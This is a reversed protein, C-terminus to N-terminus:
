RRSLSRLSNRLAAPQVPKSLFSHGSARVQNRVADSTDASIVIAKVPAEWNNQLQEIAWVGNAGHDLHFDALIIDPLASTAPLGAHVATADLAAQAGSADQACFTECGWQTLLADLGALIRPDNDICLVRLGQLESAAPEETKITAGPRVLPLGISFVSGKGPVSLLKIPLGLQQAMRSAIALGLGLGQTPDPQTSALREFEDFIRQQDAPAIGRGTDWVQVWLTNKARRCGLLVRGKQTYNIANSLFNQVIRRVLSADTHVWCQSPVWRFSLGKQTALATFERCLPTLLEAICFANPNPALKGSELRAMERLAEILQECSDLADAVAHLGQQMTNLDQQKAQQSLAEVFLRAANIPQAMDHSAAALFRSKSAHANQLQQEAQARRTNEARLSENATQLAQTRESVRDELQTKIQTLEAVLTHMETIDTYTTVYGGDPLPIGRIEIVRGDPLERTLRYEKGRTLWQLRKHIAADLDTEQQAFLGRGANFEYVKAIPCGVYLLRPPYSFMQEYRSNWAALQLQADVVSVGQAITELTTQLLAQSFQVQQSNGGVLQVLDELQLPQQKRLLDLTRQASAAGVIAALATEMRALMLKPIRDAPLLRHGIKQECERWLQAARAEGMLPGLVAQLQRVEINSPEFDEAGLHFRRHLQTFAQAQRVDIGHFRSVRSIGLLLCVNVALSWAVGQTLPDAFHLGFLANPNLWSIGGPGAHLWPHEANLLAPLLLCYAWTIAGGALGALVGNRHARPWYLGAVIAPLVQIASAFAILGIAPLTNDASLLQELLWGMLLVAVISLRRVQRLNSGLQATQKHERKGFKLWLPLVWENSIMISLTIAAVIVMGTAASLGGIFALSTILPANHALPLQLVWTDGNSTEADFVGQGALAIPIVAVSFLLLYGPLLWRATRLSQRNHHEVFMLHYQRPLCIIAGAALLTQTIFNANIAPWQGLTPSNALLESFGQQANLLQWAAAAVLLFALLKVVSEVAIASILGQHRRPGDLTRTGFLIAFCAMILATFLSSNPSFHASTNHVESQMQVTHWALSVGKLQLAIYPLTGVLALLTVLAALGQHKGYRSGIFDAISTVRNRQSVVSLKRLFPWGFIFLLIPGLYIPLFDWGFSAARGVAAFFTWSSCYVALSLGYMLAKATPSLQLQRETKWAVLFLLGAYVFAMLLVLQSNM